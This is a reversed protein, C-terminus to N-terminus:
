YAGNDISWDLKLEVSIATNSIDVAIRWLVNLVFVGSMSASQPYM